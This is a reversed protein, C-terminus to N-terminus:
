VVIAHRVMLRGGQIQDDSMSLDAMLGAGTGDESIDSETSGTMSVLAGSIVWSSGWGEVDVEWRQIRLGLVDSERAALAPGAEPLNEASVSSFICSGNHHSSPNKEKPIKVTYWKTIVQLQWTKNIQTCSSNMNKHVKPFLNSLLSWPHWHFRPRLM